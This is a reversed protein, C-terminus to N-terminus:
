IHTIGKKRGAILSFPFSLTKTIARGVRYSYSSQIEVVTKQQEMIAKQQEIIVNQLEFIHRDRDLLSKNCRELSIKLAKTYEYAVQKVFYSPYSENEVGSFELSGSIISNILNEWKAIINGASFRESLKRATEAFKIRVNDNQLLYIIKDAMDDVSRNEILFGNEGDTIIDEMGPIHFSLIPLGYGSAELLVMPLGEADSPMVFLDGYPYVESMNKVNSLFIVQENNITKFISNYDQKESDCEFRVRLALKKIIDSITEDSDPLVKLDLSYNGAILLKAEPERVLVRSFILLLLDLRKISDDFRGVALIIKGGKHFSISEGFFTNINHITVANLNTLLYAERTFNTLCIVATAHSLAEYKDLVYKFLYNNSHMQFYYEHNYAISKINEKKLKPYLQYTVPSYNTNGIFVNPNIYKVFMFLREQLNNSGCIKIFDIDENLFFTNNEVPEFVVLIIKYNYCLNNILNAIAREAGGYVWCSIHFLLVPRREEKLKKLKLITVETEIKNPNQFIEENLSDTLPM